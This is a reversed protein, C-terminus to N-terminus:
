KEPLRFARFFRVTQLVMFGFLFALMAWIRNSLHPVPMLSARMTDGFVVVLLLLVANGYGVLFSQIVRGTHDRREPDLWYDKNPLNILSPPLRVIIMPLVLFVASLLGAIGLHLKLFMDKPMYANAHGEINFHSAMRGPLQPYYWAMQGLLAALLLLFILHALGFRRRVAPLTADPM